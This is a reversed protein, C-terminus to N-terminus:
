STRANPDAPRHGAGVPAADVICVRFLDGGAVRIRPRLTDAPADESSLLMVNGVPAAPAGDPWPKGTTLRAAVDCGFLSKGVDPDGVLLNLKGAAIYKPWLWTM